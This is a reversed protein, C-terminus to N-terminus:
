GTLGIMPYVTTAQIPTNYNAVKSRGVAAIAGCPAATKPLRASGTAAIRHLGNSARPRSDKISRIVTTPVIGLLEDPDDGPPPTLSPLRSLPSKMHRLLLRTCPSHFVLFTLHPLLTM